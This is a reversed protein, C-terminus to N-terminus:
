TLPVSFSLNFIDGEIEPEHIEGGMAKVIRNALRLRLWTPIQKDPVNDNTKLFPEFQKRLDYDAVVPLRCYFRVWRGELHCDLKVKVSRAVYMYNNLLVLLAQKVRNADIKIERPMQASFEIEFEVNREKAPTTLGRTTEKLVYAADIPSPQLSLKNADIRAIDVVDNLTSLLSNTSVRTAQLFDKQQENLDSLLLLENLGVIGSLPTRLEHGVASVLAFLWPTNQFLEQIEDRAPQASKPSDARNQHDEALKSTTRTTLRNAACKLV